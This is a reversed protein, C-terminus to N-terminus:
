DKDRSRLGEYLKVFCSEASLMFGIIFLCHKNAMNQVFLM